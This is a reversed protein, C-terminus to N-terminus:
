KLEQFPGSLLRELLGAQYRRMAQEHEINELAMCLLISVSFYM